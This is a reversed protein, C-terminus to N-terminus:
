GPFTVKQGEKVSGYTVRHLIEGRADLLEISDGDNNLSMRQGNRQITKTAGGALTNLEDLRWIGRSSDRLKWGVLSLPTRRQNEISVNEYQSDLGVPSPIAATIRVGHSAAVDTMGTAIPPEVHTIQGADRKAASSKLRLLFWSGIGILIAALVAAIVQKLISLFHTYTSM